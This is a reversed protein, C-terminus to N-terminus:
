WRGAQVDVGGVALQQSPHGLGGLFPQPVGEDHGVLSLGRGSTDWGTDALQEADFDLAAPPTSGARMSRSGTPCSVSVAYDFTDAGATV